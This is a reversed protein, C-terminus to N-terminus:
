RCHVLSNTLKLVLHGSDAICLLIYINRKSLNKTCLTWVLRRPFFFPQSRKSVSFLSNIAFMLFDTFLFKM